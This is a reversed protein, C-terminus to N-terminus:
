PESAPVRGGRSACRNRPASNRSIEWRGRVRTGPNGRIKVCLTEHWHRSAARDRRRAIQVEDAAFAAEGVAALAVLRDDTALPLQQLVVWVAWQFEVIEIVIRLLLPIERRRLSLEETFEGADQAGMNLAAASRGPVRRGVRQLSRM